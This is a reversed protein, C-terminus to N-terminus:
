KSDWKRRVDKLNKAAREGLRVDPVLQNVWDYMRGSPVFTNCACPYEGCSRDFIHKRRQHNCDPTDCLEDGDVKPPHATKEKPLKDDPAKYCNM